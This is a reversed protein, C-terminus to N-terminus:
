KAASMQEMLEAMAKKNDAVVSSTIERENMLAFHADLGPVEAIIDWDYTKKLIQGALGFSYYVFIDAIGFDSGMVYPGFNVLRSFAQLGKEMQPRVEAYASESRERGFFAEGLHRRAVLEIYMETVRIIERAKAKEFAQAPFTPDQPYTEDLYDLMIGTEILFGEETELCPIKGMPSVALFDEEQSPRADLQEFEVGKEMLCQKVINTYNSLSFGHLKLM